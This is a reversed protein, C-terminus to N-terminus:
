EREEVCDSDEIERRRMKGMGRKGWERRCNSGLSCSTSLFSSKLDL